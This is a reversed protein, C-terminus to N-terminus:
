THPGRAVLLPLTGGRLLKDAVSGLVLRSAGRGHTAIAVLDIHNATALELLAPAAFESTVVLQEVSTMGKARLGDAIELLYQNAADVVRATADSDVLVAMLAYPETSSLVVPVPAIVRALLYTADPGGLKLATDMISEARKSGDLPIM